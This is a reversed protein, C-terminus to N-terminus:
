GRVEGGLLRCVRRGDAAPGTEEVSSEGPQSTEGSRERVVPLLDTRRWAIAMTVKQMRHEGPPTIPSSPTGATLVCVRESEVGGGRHQAAGDRRGGEAWWFPGSGGRGTQRGNDWRSALWGVLFDLPVINYLLYCTISAYSVVTRHNGSVVAHM